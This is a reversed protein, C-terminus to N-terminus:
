CMHDSQLLLEAGRVEFLVNKNFINYNDNDYIAIKFISIEM